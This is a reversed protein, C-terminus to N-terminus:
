MEMKGQPNRLDEAVDVEKGYYRPKREEKLGLSHDRNQEV